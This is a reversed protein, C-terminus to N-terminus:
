IWYKLARERDLSSRIVGEEEVRQHGANCVAIGVVSGGLVPRVEVARFLVDPRGSVSVLKFAKLRWAHGFHLTRRGSRSSLFTRRPCRLTLDGVSCDGPLRPSRNQTGLRKAPSYLHRSSSSSRDHLLQSADLPIWLDIVTKLLSPRKSIHPSHRLLSSICQIALLSYDPLSTRTSGLLISIM